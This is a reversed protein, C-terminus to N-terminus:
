EQYTTKPWRVNSKVNGFRLYYVNGEVSGFPTEQEGLKLLQANIKINGFRLYDKNVVVGANPAEKTYPIFYCGSLM